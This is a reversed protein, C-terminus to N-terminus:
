EVPRPPTEGGSGPASAAGGRRGLMLNRIQVIPGPLFGAILVADGLHMAFALLLANGALSLWWFLRPFHSESARESAWWQVLFRSSWLAQGLAAVVVWEVRSSTRERLEGLSSGVLVAGIALALAGAVPSPIGRRSRLFLNRAYILANFSYGAFLVYTELAFAYAGLSATGALSLWWFSAPAVSRKARESLWWQVLFRSFFCANGIWGLVQLALPLEDGTPASM